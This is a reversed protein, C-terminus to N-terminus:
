DRGHRLMEFQSLIIIQSEKLTYPDNREAPKQWGGYKIEFELAWRMLWEKGGGVRNTWRERGAGYTDERQIRFGAVAEM